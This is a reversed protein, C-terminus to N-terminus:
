LQRIILMVLLLQAKAVRHQHQPLQSLNLRLSHSRRLQRKRPQNADLRCAKPAKLPRDVPEPLVM